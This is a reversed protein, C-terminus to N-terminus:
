RGPPAIQQLRELNTTAESLGPDLRLAERFAAAAATTKGQLGLVIGLKNAVTADVPNAELAQRYTAEAEPLRGTERLADGLRVRALWQGPDLSVAVKLPGVADAPRRLRLLTIGVNAHLRPDLPRAARARLYVELAGALDGQDARTRAHGDVALFDTPDISAAARYEAQATPLEGQSATQHARRLHDHFSISPLGHHIRFAGVVGVGLSLAFAAMGVVFLGRYLRPAQAM